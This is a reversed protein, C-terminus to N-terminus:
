DLCRVHALLMTCRHWRTLDMYVVPIVSVVLLVTLHMPGRILKFLATYAKKSFIRVRRQRCHAHLQIGASLIRDGDESLSQAARRRPLQTYSM